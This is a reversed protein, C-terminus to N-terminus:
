RAASIGVPTAGMDQYFANSNSVIGIFYDNGPKLAPVKWEYKGKGDVGIPVSAAIAIVASEEKKILALRVTQGPSGDFAWRIVATAGITWQESGKPPNELLIQTVPTKGAVLKFEGSTDGIGNEATVSITYKGGPPLDSPTNWKYAGSQEMGLPTDEALVLRANVWGQRQLRVSVTKGLEGRFSWKITNTGGLAWEAVESPSTVRLSMEKPSAVALSTSLLIAMLGLVAARKLM